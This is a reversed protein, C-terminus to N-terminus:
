RSSTIASSGARYNKVTESLESLPRGARQAIADFIAGCASLGAEIGAMRTHISGQVVGSVGPILVPEPTIAM